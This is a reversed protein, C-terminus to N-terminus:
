SIAIASHTAHEDFPGDASKPTSAGGHALSPSAQLAADQQVPVLQPM